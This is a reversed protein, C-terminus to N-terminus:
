RGPSKLILHFLMTFTVTHSFARVSNDVFNYGSNHRFGADTVLTVTDPGLRLAGYPAQAAPSVSGYGYAFGSTGIFVNVNDYAPCEAIVEVADAVFM